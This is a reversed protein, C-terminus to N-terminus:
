RRSNEIVGKLASLEPINGMISTLEDLQTDTFGRVEASLTLNNQLFNLLKLWSESDLVEAEDEQVQSIGKISFYNAFGQLEKEDPFTIMEQIIRNLREVILRYDPNSALEEYTRVDAPLTIQNHKVVWHLFRPDSFNIM